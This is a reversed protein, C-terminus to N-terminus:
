DGGIFQSIKLEYPAPYGSHRYLKLYYKGAEDVSFTDDLSRGSKTLRTTDFTKVVVEDEAYITIRFQAYENNKTGDLLKIFLRYTGSEPLDVLYIDTDDSHKLASLAERTKNLSGKIGEQATTWDLPTAMPLEDNPEGDADHVLGNENSPVIRVGYKAPNVRFTMAEKGRYIWLYYKGREPITFLNRTHRGAKYMDDDTMDKILVGDEDFIKIVLPKYEYNRTGEYLYAYLAYQGPRDFDISYVDTNDTYRRAGKAPSMFLTGNIDHGIVSSNLPTAMEFNDNPEGYKDQVLGNAISPYLSFVYKATRGAGRYVILYYKGENEVTFSDRMRRTAKIMTESDLTKVEIGESDVVKVKTKAYSYEETGELLNMFFTYTGSANLDLSYVDTDDTHRLSNEKQRTVNLSGDIEEMAQELSIPTAMAVNDNIEGEKDQQLGNDISPQVSVAYKAMKGAGRHIKLYYDGADGIQFSQRIHRGAKQLDRSPNKWVEVGDTDYLEIGVPAYSYSESGNLLNAFVTYTEPSANVDLRIKYCDASADGEKANLVGTIEEVTTAPYLGHCDSMFGDDKSWKFYEIKREAEEISEPDKTVGEMVAKAKQTDNLGADVFELGVDMKHKLITADDVSGTPSLAGNIVALIFQSKFIHGNKLEKVWYKLGEDDPERNFLNEYVKRVFVEEDTGDPYKSRTEPQEFFSSAIDELCAHGGFANKVWYQLGARDPARNFTAVYLRTVSEDTSEECAFLSTTGLLLAVLM